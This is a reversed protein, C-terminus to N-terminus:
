EIYRTRSRIGGPNRKLKQKDLLPEAVLALQFLSKSGCQERVGEFGGGWDRRSSDKSNRRKKQSM